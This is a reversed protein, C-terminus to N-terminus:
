MRLIASIRKSTLYEAGKLLIEPNDKAAGLMTNCSQCLLARVLGSAHCHDIFLPKGEKPPNGCIACLGCQAELMNQYQQALLGYKRLHHQSAHKGYACKKCRRHQKGLPNVTFETLPKEIQCYTCVKTAPSESAHYLEEM